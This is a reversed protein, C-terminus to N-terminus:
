IGIQKFRNRNYNSFFGSLFEEKDLWKVIGTEGKQNLVEQNLIKGNYLARYCHQLYITSFDEEGYLRRDFLEINSLDLGTEEKTERLIAFEPTEGSDVKGGPLGFKAADDKRSVGLIKGEKNQIIVCVAKRREIFSELESLCDIFTKCIKGGSEIISGYIMSNVPNGFSEVIPYKEDAKVYENMPIDYYKTYGFILKCKSYARAIEWATGDDVNQGRFPNLNAILVDCEDIKSLNSHFIKISSTIDENKDIPIVGEFMNNITNCLSQKRELEEISDSFVEFGALYIKIKRM